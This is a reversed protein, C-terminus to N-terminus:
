IPMEGKHIIYNGASVEVVVDSIQAVKRDVNALCRRYVETVEDYRATDSYIYDSIIVANKVSTAFAAVNEACKEAAAVDMECSLPDPFLENLVLATVSDLLFTGNCDADELCSLIDRGVEITEFGMGERDEIHRRIRERDEGDAPIMTAVYYHLAVTEAGNGPEMAGTEGAGAIGKALKVALDQGLTTKGNKAGGSIFIIM